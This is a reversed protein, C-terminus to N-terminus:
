VSKQVSEFNKELKQNKQLELLGHIEMFDDISYLKEQFRVFLKYHQNIIEIILGGLTYVGSDLRRM